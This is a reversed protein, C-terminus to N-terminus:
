ERPPPSDDYLLENSEEPAPEAYRSAARRRLYLAILAVAVAAVVIGLGIVVLPVGASAPPAPAVNLIVSASTIRGIHDTIVVLVTFNGGSPFSHSVASGNATGGDGFNWAYSLPPSGGTATVSFGVPQGAVPAYTNPSPGTRVALAPNVRLSLNKSLAAGGSDTFNLEATYNGPNLYVHPVALGTSNSGDGFSWAFSFPSTGNNVLATFSVSMRADLLTLSAVAQVTPYESVHVVLTASVTNNAVDAVICGATFTGPLLYSHNVRSGATSSGGDGFSWTYRFPAGGTGATVLAQFPDVLGTDISTRLTLNLAPAPNVAFSLPSYSAVVGEGDVVVVFVPFTGATRFVQGSLTPVNTVFRLAQVPLHWTYWPIPLTGGTLNANFTVQENVVPVAPTANVVLSFPAGFAYTTGTFKATVYDYGGFAIPAANFSDEAMAVGSYAPGLPGTYKAWSCTPSCTLLWTSTDPVESPTSAGGMITLTSTSSDYGMSGTVRPPPALGNNAFLTSTQNSWSGTHFYWTSNTPCFLMSSSCSPSQGGYLVVSQVRADYAMQSFARPGPDKASSTVKAWRQTVPDFASTVNTTHGGPGPSNYGGYLLLESDYDDWALSAGEVAVPCYLVCSSTTLNSWLGGHFAWTENIPCGVVGCGGYLIVQNTTPIFAMSAFYVANPFGATGSIDTWTGNGFTWTEQSVVRAPSIGGFYVYESLANDYALSGFAASSPAAGVYATENLWVAGGARPAPLRAGSSTPCPSVSAGPGSCRSAASGGPSLTQPLEQIAARVTDPLGSGVSTTRHAASGSSAAPIASPISAVLLALLLPWVRWDRTWRRLPGQPLTPPM